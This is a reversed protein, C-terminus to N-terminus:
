LTALPASRKGNIGISALSLRERPANHSQFRCPSLTSLPKKGAIKERGLATANYRQRRCQARIQRQLPFLGYFDLQCGRPRLARGKLRPELSSRNEIPSLDPSCDLVQIRKRRQWSKAIHASHPKANDQQFICPRGQFLHRRQWPYQCLGMCVRAKPSPDLHDKEEKTRLVCCGNRGFFVQFVSEDSWLVCKWQTITWGLHRLAWLLRCRKQVSNVYPKSKACYLNLQCKQIYSRITTSSLLKGFYDQAWTTIDSISSHRNKICHQRLSRLDRDNLKPKCGQGKRVSIGGSEKFRKIINHVTSPSIDLYRGIKRQHVNNKFMEIIKECIKQCVPLGWGM